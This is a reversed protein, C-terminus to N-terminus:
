GKRTKKSYIKVHSGNEPDDLPLALFFDNDGSVDFPKTPALGSLSWLLVTVLLVKSKM